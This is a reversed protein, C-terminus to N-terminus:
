AKDAVVEREVRKRYLRREVPGARPTWGGNPNVWFRYRVYWELAERWVFRRGRGAGACPLDLRNVWTWVTRETVLLRSALEKTCLKEEANM